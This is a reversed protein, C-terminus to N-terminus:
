IHKAREGIIRGFPNSRISVMNGASDEDERWPLRLINVFSTVAITLLILLLIMQSLDGGSASTEAAIQTSM